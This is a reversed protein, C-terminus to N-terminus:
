FWGMRRFIALQVAIIGIVILCVVAFGIGSDSGPIGGVNIGLLGTLFGLPLFIAGVISLVYMARNMEESARNALEEQLLASRDRVSDLMEIVRTLDQAAEGIQARAEEDLWDPSLGLLRGIADRQPSLFRRYGIVDRRLETLEKRIPGSDRGLSREEMADIQDELRDVTDALRDTLGEILEGMFCAESPMRQGAEVSERIAQVAFVKFRRLSVVLGPRVWVRLAVMDEPEAGPNLNVGRLFVLLSEGFRETRPRTEEDFLAECALFPLSDRTEVWQRTSPDLRDCHVWRWGGDPTPRELDAPGLPTGRGERDFDFACILADDSLSM